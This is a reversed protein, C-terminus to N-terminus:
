ELHPYAGWTIIYYDGKWNRYTDSLASSLHRLAIAHFIYRGVGCLLLSGRSEYTSEPNTQKAAYLM